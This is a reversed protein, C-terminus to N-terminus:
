YLTNRIQARLREARAISHLQLETDPATELQTIAGEIDRVMQNLAGNNRYFTEEFKTGVGRTRVVQDVDLLLTRLDSASDAALAAVQQQAEEIARRHAAHDRAQLLLRGAFFVGAIAVAVALLKLAFGVLWLIVGVLLVVAVLIGCGAGSDNQKAM